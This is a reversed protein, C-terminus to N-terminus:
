PLIVEIAPGLSSLRSSCGGGVQSRTNVWAGEPVQSLDLGGDTCTTRSFRPVDSVPRAHINRSVAQAFHRGSVCGGFSPWVFSTMKCHTSKDPLMQQSWQHAKQQSKPGSEKARLKSLTGHPTQTHLEHLVLVAATIYCSHLIYM